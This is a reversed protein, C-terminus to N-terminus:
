SLEISKVLVKTFLPRFGYKRRYRSKAKYKLVEVKEGKLEGLVELEVKAKDVLPKGVKVFDEDFVLLVEPEFKKEITRDILLEEGEVVEYQRGKIRIVVRKM